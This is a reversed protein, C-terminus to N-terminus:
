LKAVEEVIKDKIQTWSISDKLLMPDPNHDADDFYTLSKLVIFDDYAMFKQKFLAVIETLPIFKILFYIDYFDKKSGRQVIAKLKMPAIDNIDLLRVDNILKQPFLNKYNMKVFDVKIGQITTILMQEGENDIQFEYNQYLYNIISEKDIPDPSFLDLDISLRHGIQLALATGGVLTFQQLIPEKMLKILLELTRPDIASTQLM